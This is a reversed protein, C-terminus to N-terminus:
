SCPITRLLRCTYNFVVSRIDRLFCLLIFVGFNFNAEYRTGRLEFM